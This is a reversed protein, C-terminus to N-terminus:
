LKGESREREYNKRWIIYAQTKLVFQCVKPSSPDCQHEDLIQHVWSSDKLKNNFYVQFKM